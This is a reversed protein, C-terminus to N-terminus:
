DLVLAALLQGCIVLGFLTATGLKPALVVTLSVFIAGIVGGTWQYPAIGSLTAPLPVRAALVYLSLSLTGLVFSVLAALTPHGLPARLTANIAAQVPLLIGAVFALFIWLM